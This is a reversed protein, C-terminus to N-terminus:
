QGRSSGARGRGQAYERARAQATTRADWEVVSLVAWYGLFALVLAVALVTAGAAGEIALSPEEFLVLAGEVAFTILLAFTGSFITAFLLGAVGERLHRVMGLAFLIAFTLFYFPTPLAAGLETTGAQIGVLGYYGVAALVAAILAFLAGRGSADALGAPEFAFRSGIGPRADLGALFGDTYGHEYGAEYGDEFAEERGAYDGRYVDIEGGIAEQAVNEARQRMAERDRGPDFRPLGEVARGGGEPDRDGDSRTDEHTNAMTDLQDDVFM